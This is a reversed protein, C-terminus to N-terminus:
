PEEGPLAPLGIAKGLRRHAKNIPLAFNTALGSPIYVDVFELVMALDAKTVTVYFDDEEEALIIASGAACRLTPIEHRQVVGGGTRDKTEQVAIETAIIVRNYFMADNLYREKVKALVEEIESM